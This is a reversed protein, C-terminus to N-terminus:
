VTTALGKGRGDLNWLSKMLAFVMAGVILLVGSLVFVPAMGILTILIGGVAISPPGGIFSLLGDIAFYRGRMEYPVLNQASTLWINNGFGLGLGIGLAAGVAVDAFPFLGLVLLLGGGLAGWSVISVKGAYALTIPFRGALLSGAAGGAVFVALIIGYLLPGAKLTNTVYIVLFYTPIGFLFNFVLALLSLRFLGHQTLLWRFGEKIESRMNPHVSPAIANSEVTVGRFRYVLLGSFLAALGYGIVGFVFTLAVGAVVILGGGLVTSISSVIQFGSQTMGNANPLEDAHVIDPLVAYSASRYLEGAAAWVVVVAVVIAIQFNSSLSLLTLIALCAVSVVNSLLLLMRRNVRDIWVGVPLTVIVTSVTNAVGVVAVDLASHTVAYVIWVLGVNAVQFASRSTLYMGFYDLFSRNRLIGRRNHVLHVGV